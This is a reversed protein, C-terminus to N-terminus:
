HYIQWSVSNSTLSCEKASTPLTRQSGQATRGREGSHVCQQPFQSYADWIGCLRQSPVPNQEESSGKEGPSINTLKDLDKCKGPLLSTKKREWFTWQYKCNRDRAGLNGVRFHTPSQKILQWGCQNCFGKWTHGSKTRYAKSVKTFGSSTRKPHMSSCPPHCIFADM